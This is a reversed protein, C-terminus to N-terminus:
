KKYEQPRADWVMGFSKIDLHHSLRDLKREKFLPPNIFSCCPDTRPEKHNISIREIGIGNGYCAPKKHQFVRYIAGRRSWVTGANRATRFDSSLVLAGKADLGQTEFQIRTLLLTGGPDGILGIDENYLCYWNGQHLVLMADVIPVGTCLEIARSEAVRVSGDRGYEIPMAELVSLEKQEPMVYDIGDLSFLFPFSSHVGNDFVKYSKGTVLNWAEIWGRSEKFCYYEFLVTDERLLFPDACFGSDKKIIASRGDKLHVHCEWTDFTTKLKTRSKFITM